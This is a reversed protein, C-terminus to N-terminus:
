RAAKPAAVARGPDPPLRPDGPCPPALSLGAAREARAIQRELATGLARRYRDRGRVQAAVAGFDCFLRRHTEEVWGITAPDIGAYGTAHPARQQVLLFTDQPYHAVLEALREEGSADPPRAALQELDALASAHAVLAPLLELVACADPAGRAQGTQALEDLTRCRVVGVEASRVALAGADPGAQWAATGALGLLALRTPEDRAGPAADATEEALRALEDRAAARCPQEPACADRRAVLEALRRAGQDPDATTACGALLLM